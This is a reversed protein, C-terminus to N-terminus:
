YSIRHDIYAFKKPYIRTTSVLVGARYQKQEVTYQYYVPRTQLYGRRGAQIEGTYTTTTSNTYTFSFGATTELQRIPMKVTGSVSNSFTTTVSRSLTGPGLGSAHTTWGYPYVTKYGPLKTAKWYSVCAICQPTTTSDLETSVPTSATAQGGGSTVALTTVAATIVLRQVWNRAFGIKM